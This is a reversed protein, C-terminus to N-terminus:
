KKWIRDFVEFFDCTSVEPDHIFSVSSWLENNLDKNLTAVYRDYEQSFAEDRRESVIKIKNADTVDKNFTSLCKIIHYGYETQVIDSIEGEALNFAANEFVADMEGKGFSYQSNSDENYESILKDFDEGALAKDHAEKAREFAQSRAYETYNERNGDEDLNYTKILIHEVTITRAEDDSIEPNIDKIIDQYLKESTAYERYLGEIVSKDVGMEAIEAENLSGYYEDAAQSVLKLEEEDLSIGRSQALLNIAKVQAMKSLAMDKVNEELTVGDVKADWIQSGYVNEYQNQINTLYVMIEPLTCSKNELRFVEDKAFGTTLVVKAPEESEGCGSFLIICTVTLLTWAPLRLGTRISKLARRIM